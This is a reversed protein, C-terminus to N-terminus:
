GGALMQLGGYDNGKAVRGEAVGGMRLLQLQAGVVHPRLAAVEKCLADLSRGRKVRQPKHAIPDPGLTRTAQCLGESHGVAQRGEVEAVVVHPQLNSQLTGLGQGTAHPAGLRQHVKVKAAVVQIGLNHM